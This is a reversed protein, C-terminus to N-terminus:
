RIKYFREGYKYGNLLGIIRAKFYAPILLPYTYHRQSKFKKIAEIKKNFTESIDVYMRPHTENKINWIEFAFLPIEKKINELASEVVKSVVKHDKHPDLSSHTFVKVPNYKLILNKIKDKSNKKEVDAEFNLDEIGLFYFQKVGIFKAIKKAESVREKILIDKRLWPSSMEGFSFIVSIVDKGEKAYKAATGGVGIELDDNHACFVMITEKNKPM